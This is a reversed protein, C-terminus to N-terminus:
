ELSSKQSGGHWLWHILGQRVCAVGFVRFFVCHLAVMDMPPWLVVDVM